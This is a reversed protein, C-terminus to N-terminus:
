CAFLEPGSKPLYKINPFGLRPRQFLYHSVQYRLFIEHRTCFRCSEQIFGLVVKVICAVNSFELTQQIKSIGEFLRTARGGPSQFLGSEPSHSILSLISLVATLLGVSLEQPRAVLVHESWNLFNSLRVWDLIWVQLGM